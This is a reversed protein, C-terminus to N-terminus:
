FIKFFLFALWIDSELSVLDFVEIESFDEPNLTTLLLNLFHLELTGIAAVKAKTAIRHRV